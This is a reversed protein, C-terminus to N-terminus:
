LDIERSSAPLAEECARLLRIFAAERAEEGGAQPTNCGYASLSQRSSATAGSFEPM